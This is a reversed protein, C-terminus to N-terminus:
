AKRSASPKAERVATEFPKLACRLCDGPYPSGRHQHDGSADYAAIAASVSRILKDLPHRSRSSLPPVVPRSPKAVAEVERMEVSAGYTRACDHACDMGFDVSTKSIPEGCRSCTLSLNIM